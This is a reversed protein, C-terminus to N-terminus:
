TEHQRTSWIFLNKALSLCRLHTRRESEALRLTNEKPPVQQNCWTSIVPLFPCARRQELTILMTSFTLRNSIFFRLLLSFGFISMFDRREEIHMSFHKENKRENAKKMENRVLPEASSRHAAAFFLSWLRLMSSFMRIRLTCRRTDCVATTERERERQVHLICSNGRRM